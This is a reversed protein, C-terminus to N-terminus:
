QDSISVVKHNKHRVLIRKPVGEELGKSPSWNGKKRPSEMLSDFKCGTKQIGQENCGKDPGNLSTSRNGNSGQRWKLCEGKTKGVGMMQGEESESDSSTTTSDMIERRVHGLKKKELDLKGERYTGLLPRKKLCKVYVQKGKDRFESRSKSFHVKNGRVAKRNRVNAGLERDENGMSDGIKYMWSDEKDSNLFQGEPSLEFKLDLVNLIWDFDAPTSDKEMSVVFSKNGEIVKVKNCVLQDDYLSVLVKGRDMRRRSITDQEILLVEGM